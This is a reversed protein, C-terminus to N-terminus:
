IPVTRNSSLGVIKSEYALLGSPLDSDVFVVWVRAVDIFSLMSVVLIPNSATFTGNQYAVAM